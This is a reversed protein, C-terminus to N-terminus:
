KLTEDFQNEILSHLQLTESISTVRVNSEFNRLVQIELRGTTRFNIYKFYPDYFLDRTYMSTM